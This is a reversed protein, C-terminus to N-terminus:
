KIKSLEALVTDIDYIDNLKEIIKLLKDKDRKKTKVIENTNLLIDFVGVYTLYWKFLNHYIYPHIEKGEAKKDATDLAELLVEIIIKQYKLYALLEKKDDEENFHKTYIIEKTVDILKSIDVM